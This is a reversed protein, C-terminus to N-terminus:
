RLDLSEDPFQRYFSFHFPDTILMKAAKDVSKTPITLPLSVIFLGTGVIAAAAGLPRAILLDALPLEDNPTKTQAWGEVCLSPSVLLLTLLIWFLIKM